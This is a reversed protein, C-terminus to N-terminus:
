AAELRQFLSDFMVAEAGLEHMVKPVRIWVTDQFVKEKGDPRVIPSEGVRYRTEQDDASNIEGEPQIHPPLVSRFVDAFCDLLDDSLERQDGPPWFHYIIDGGDVSYDVSFRTGDWRSWQLALPSTPVFDAGEDPTKSSEPPSEM